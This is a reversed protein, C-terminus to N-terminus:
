PRQSSSTVYYQHLPGGFYTYGELEKKDMTSYQRGYKYYAAIKVESGETYTFVYLRKQDTLEGTYPEECRYYLDQEGNNYKYLGVYINDTNIRTTENERRLRADPFNMIQAKEELEEDVKAKTGMLGWKDVINPNLVVLYMTGEDDLYRDGSYSVPVLDKFESPRDEIKVCYRDMGDKYIRAGQENDYQYKIFLLKM